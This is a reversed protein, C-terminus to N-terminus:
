LMITNIVTDNLILIVIDRHINLYIHIVYRRLIVYKFTHMFLSFFDGKFPHNKLQM